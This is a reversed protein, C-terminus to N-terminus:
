PLPRAAPSGMQRSIQLAAGTLASQLRQLEDGEVKEIPGGASLAAILQGRHDFIPAAIHRFGVVIEEHDIAFQAKRVKALEEEFRKISTITNPTLPDM